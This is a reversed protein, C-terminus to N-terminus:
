NSPQLYKGLFLATYLLFKALSTRELIAHGIDPLVHFEFTKGLEALRQVFRM